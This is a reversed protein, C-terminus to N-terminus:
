PMAHHIQRATFLLMSLTLNWDVSPFNSLINLAAKPCFLQPFLSKAGSPIGEGEKELIGGTLWTGQQWHLSQSFASKSSIHDTVLATHGGGAGASPASGGGCYLRPAPHRAPVRPQLLVQM